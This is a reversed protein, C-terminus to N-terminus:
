SARHEVLARRAEACADADDSDLLRTALAEWATTRRQTRFATRAQARVAPDEDAVARELAPLHADDALLEMLHAALRREDAAGREYLRSAEAVGDLARMAQLLCLRSGEVDLEYAHLLPVVAAPDGERALEEAVECWTAPNRLKPPLPV